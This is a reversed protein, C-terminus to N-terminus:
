WQSTICDLTYTSNQSNQGDFGGFFYLKSGVLTMTSNKLCPNSGFSDLISLFILINSNISLSEWCFVQKEM